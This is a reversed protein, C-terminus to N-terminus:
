QKEITTDKRTLKSFRVTVNEFIILKHYRISSFVTLIEILCVDSNLFSNFLM